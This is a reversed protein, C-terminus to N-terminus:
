DALVAAPDVRTARRAPLWCALAAAVALVLTALGISTLDFGNVGYLLSGLTRGLLAALVIGLGVGAAVMALGSAFVLRILDGGTAGLAMRIGLERRRQTVSYAMVGFTGIAALLLALLGFGALLEAGMRAPALTQELEQQELTAPIPGLSPDLGGVVAGLSVLAAAPDGKTRVVIAAPAFHQELPFYVQAQPTEGLSLYTVTPVEGVVTVDWTEQLFRLGKGLPNQGPWLREALAQNIIAVMPASPGDAASFDRGRLIPIGMANFYGPGVGSVPTLKGNRTDSTDVGAPFTTRETGGQFPLADTVAAGAVQPLALLRAVADKYFQDERAQPYRAAQLPPTLAALHATGFGTPAAQANVLSHLFMGAVILAVLSFAVQAAVLLGRLSYWHLGGAPAESRGGLAALPGTRTARLAPLLGFLVTAVVAALLTFGLVPASIKLTIDNGFGAPRLAWLADKALYAFGVACAAAVLALVLSEALLQQVLQGRRAGLAMRLAFERRREATRVLLLNAVNACAILLVLGAIAGILAGALLFLSRQNVPVNSQSLPVLVADRGADDTPFEQALHAALASMAKQAQAVSVGPKLRAVGLAFAPRRQNFWDKVTGTLVQDHMAVPIYIDQQNALPGVHQFTAPAVGVVTYEIGNLNLQKGAAAAAGGLSRQAFGYSVVAVAHGGPTSDEVPLFGRGTAMKVGLLPFFNANVLETPVPEPRGNQMWSVGAFIDVSMASFVNNDQQYDRLNIYSTPLYGNGANREDRQYIFVARSPQEVPVPRLFVANILTFVTTNVGIGLTLSLVAVITFGPRRGLLRVAGRLDRGLNGWSM